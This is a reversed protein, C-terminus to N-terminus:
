AGGRIRLILRLLAILIDQLSPAPLSKTAEAGAEANAAATAAAQSAAADAAAQTAAAQAEAATKAAAAAVVAAAADATAKAAADAATKAAAAKTAAAKAAVAAAAAAAAKAAAAKAAIAAAEKAPSTLAKVVITGVVAGTGYSNSLFVNAGDWSDGIMWNPASGGVVPVFHTHRVGKADTWALSLAVYEDKSALGAKIAADNRGAYKGAMGFRTPYLRGLANDDGPIADLTGTGDNVFIHAKTLLTDLQGPNTPWGAWTLFDALTTVFCGARGITTTGPGSGLVQNQWPAKPGQQAYNAM